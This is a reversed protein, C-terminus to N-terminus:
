VFTLQWVHTSSVTTAACGKPCPRAQRWGKKWEAESWERKQGARMRVSVTVGVHASGGNTLLVFALLFDKGLMRKKETAREATESTATM